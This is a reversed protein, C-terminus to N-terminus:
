SRDQTQARILLCDCPMLGAVTTRQKLERARDYPLWDPRLRPAGGAGEGRASVRKPPISSFSKCLHSAARWGRGCSWWRALVRFVNGEIRAPFSLRAVGACAGSALPTADALLPHQPRPRRKGFHIVAPAQPVPGRRQLGGALRRRACQRIAARAPPSALSAKRPASNVSLSSLPTLVGNQPLRRLHSSASANHSLASPASASRAQPAGVSAASSWSDKVPRRVVHARSSLCLVVTATQGYPGLSLVALSM